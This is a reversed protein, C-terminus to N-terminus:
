KVEIYNDAFLDATRRNEEQQRIMKRLEFIKNRNLPQRNEDLIVGGLDEVLQDCTELMIDFARSADKVKNIIMFLSLGPCTFAGMNQLDFTGPKSISAVSFLISGLGTPNEHRHFINMKGYRLGASLLAQLLDYGGYPYNPEAMLHLIIIDSLTPEKLGLIEDADEIKDNILSENENENDDENEFNSPTSSSYHKKKRIYRNSKEKNRKVFGLLAVSFVLLVIIALILISLM